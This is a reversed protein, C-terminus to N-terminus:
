AAELDFLARLWAILKLAHPAAADLYKKTIAQGIPKGPEEQWALWTHINAKAVHRVLFRREEEPISQVAQLARAWLPDSGSILFRCFDELMGPVTNDPMLWVGVVPKDPERILTGDPAPSEPTSRFDARSLADRVRLWLHAVPDPHEDTPDTDLVIGLRQLSKFKLRTRLSTLVADAGGSQELEFQGSIGHRILLHEFVHRDDPGEVLL